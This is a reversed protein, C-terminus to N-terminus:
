HYWKEADEREECNECEFIKIQLQRSNELQFISSGGYRNIADGYSTRVFESIRKSFFESFIKM